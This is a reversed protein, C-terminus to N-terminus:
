MLDVRKAFALCVVAFLALAGVIWFFWVFDQEDRGPVKVNMGFLGTVVNMPLLITAFTTLRGVVDNTVNSTQSLEISIQALYNSHSRSLITEYHNLNQLMTIIHDQIDGLYLAVDHNINFGSLSNVVAECGGMQGDKVRDEFRKILGKVVDAKSNLLRLMIMVKKRCHGIRRLMDSQESEKLILVLEDISDVELEITSVLPAFSDTIDDIVAYNIWDPTVTIFDKLQKIRRLVHSPHPTPTFHFTLICERCVVNYFNVPSMYDPSYLDQEFSRFSVFM